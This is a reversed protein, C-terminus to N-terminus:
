IAVVVAFAFGIPAAFVMHAYILRLQEARVRELM